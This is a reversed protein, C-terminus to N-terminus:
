VMGRAMSDHIAALVKDTDIAAVCRFMGDELPFKCRGMCGQCPLPAYIFQVNSPAVMEDYPVGGGAYAASALCLSHVGLVVALHLGATDVGIAMRSGRLMGALNAFGATERSVNPLALLSMFEPNRDFDTHHGAVLIQWHHPLADIVLRWLAPPLQRQAVASFPFLVVTDPMRVEPPLQEDPLLALECRENDELLADAFRSWRLIKDQRLSGSDFMWSFVAKGEAIRQARGKSPPPLMAVSEDAAAAAILAEDEDAVRALDLSVVLRYHAQYLERFLTWRYSLDDLHRFDVRRLRLTRPFIFSMSAADRRCLLTVSEDQHGLLMLRGLVASLFVMEAPGRSSVLLVGSAKARRRRLRLIRHLLPDLLGRVKM